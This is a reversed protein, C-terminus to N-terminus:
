EHDPRFERLDIIASELTRPGDCTWKKNGVSVVYRKSPCLGVDLIADPSISLHRGTGIAGKEFIYAALGAYIPPVLIKVRAAEEAEIEVMETDKWEFSSGVVFCRGSDRIEGSIFYPGFALSLNTSLTLGDGDEAFKAIISRETNDTGSLLKFKSDPARWPGRVIATFYRARVLNYPIDVIADGPVDLLTNSISHSPAWGLERISQTNLISISSSIRFQGTPLGTVSIPQGCKLDFPLVRRMIIPMDKSYTLYTKLWPSIEALKEFVQPDTRPQNGGLLDNNNLTLRPSLVVKNHSHRINGVDILNTKTALDVQKQAVWYNDGRRWLADIRYIGPTVGSFLFSGQDDTTTQDLMPVMIAKDSISIRYLEVRAGFGLSDPVAGHIKISQEVDIKCLAINDDNFILAGSISGDLNDRIANHKWQAEVDPTIRGMRSLLGVRWGAARPVSFRGSSNSHRILDIGVCSDILAADYDESAFSDSRSRAISKIIGEVDRGGSVARRLIDWDNIRSNNSKNIVEITKNWGRRPFGNSPPIVFIKVEDNINQSFEFQITSRSFLKIILRSDTPSISAIRAFFGPASIRCMSLKQSKPLRVVGNTAFYTSMKPTSSVFFCHEVKANRVINQNDNSSIKIAIESNKPDELQTPSNKRLRRPTIQRDLNKHLEDSKPISKDHESPRSFKYTLWLTMLAAIIAICYCTIKGPSKQM